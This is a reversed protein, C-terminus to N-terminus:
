KVKFSIVIIRVIFSLARKRKQFCLNKFLIHLIIIYKVFFNLILIFRM